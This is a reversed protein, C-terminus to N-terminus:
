IQMFLTTLPKRNWSARPRGKRSHVGTIGNLFSAMVRGGARLVLVSLIVLAALKPFPGTFTLGFILGVGLLVVTGGGTLKRYFQGDVPRRMLSECEKCQYIDGNRTEHRTTLGTHVRCRRRWYAEPNPICHNIEPINQM